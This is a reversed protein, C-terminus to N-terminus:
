FSHSRVRNKTIAFSDVVIFKIRLEGLTSYPYTPEGEVGDFSHTHVKSTWLGAKNAAVGLRYSAMM